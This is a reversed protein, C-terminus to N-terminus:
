CQESWLKGSELCGMDAMNLLLFLECRLKCKLMGDSEASNGSEMCVVCGACGLKVRELDSGM